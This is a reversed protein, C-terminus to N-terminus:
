SAHGQAISPALLPLFRCACRCCHLLAATCRCCVPLVGATCVQWLNGAVDHFGEASPAMAAVGCEGGYALNLNAAGRFAVGSREM